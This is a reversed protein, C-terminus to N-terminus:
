GTSRFRQPAMGCVHRLKANESQLHDIESQLEAYKRASAQRAEAKTRRLEKAHKDRLDSLAAEHSGDASAKAEELAAVAADREIEVATIQDHARQLATLTEDHKQTYREAIREDRRATTEQQTGSRLREIEAMHERKLVLMQRKLKQVNRTETDVARDRRRAQKELLTDHLTHVERTADGNELRLREVQQVLNQIQGRLTYITHRLMNNEDVFQKISKEHVSPHGMSSDVGGRRQRPAPEFVCVATTETARLIRYKGGNSRNSHSHSGGSSGFVDSSSNDGRASQRPQV